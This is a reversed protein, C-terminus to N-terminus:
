LTFSTINGKEELQWATVGGSRDACLIAPSGLMIRKYGASYSSDQFSFLSKLLELNHTNFLQKPNPFLYSSGDVEFLWFKGSTFRALVVPIDSKTRRTEILDKTEDVEIIQYYNGFSSAYQNYDAILKRLSSSVNQRPNPIETALFVQQNTPSYGSPITFLAPEHTTREKKIEDIQSRVSGIDKSLEEKLEQYLTQGFSSMLSQIQAEISEVSEGASLSRWRDPSLDVRDILYQIQRDINKQNEISSRIQQQINILESKLDPM